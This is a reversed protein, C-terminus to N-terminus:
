LPEWSTPRRGFGKVRSEIDGAETERLQIIGDFQGTITNVVQPDHSDDDFTYIGLSGTQDIRRTYVHLFKFVKQASLYQLLTSISILGYRIDTIGREEFHKFLKATSVSIGTLDSPSSVEEITADLLERDASGSANVVGVRNRDLSEVYRELDRCVSRASDTTICLIGDGAQYGAALLQLALERKGTMAPGVIAINTGAPLTELTDGPLVSSVDYTDSM